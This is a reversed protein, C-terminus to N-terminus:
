SMSKNFQIQLPTINNGRFPSQLHVRLPYAPDGYICLPGGNVRHSHNQLRPLLGSMALMGSDHRRGEVPGYLDAILGNPAVVSQFKIGHVRKHGNYLHRQYQGPRCCPRLTGDIFGWCNDLAAGKLHISASFEELREQSLWVQNFDHLLHNFNEYVIDLIMNSMMCLEPVPRGFMKVLDWYRCPYSFRKLFVCFAESGM